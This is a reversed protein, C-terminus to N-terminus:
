GSIADYALYGCACIIHIQCELCIGIFSLRFVQVDVFLSNGIIREVCGLLIAQLLQRDLSKKRCLADRGPLM